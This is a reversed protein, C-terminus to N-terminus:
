VAGALVVVAVTFAALVWSEVLYPVAEMVTVGAVIASDESVKAGAETTLPFVEVPVTVAVVAAGVPPTTIESELPLAATADTGLETVIGAPLVLAVNGADALVTALTVTTVTIRLM